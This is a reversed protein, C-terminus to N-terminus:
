SRSDSGHCFNASERDQINYRRHVGPLFASVRFAKLSRMMLWINRWKCVLLDFKPQTGSTVGLINTALKLRCLLGCSFKRM